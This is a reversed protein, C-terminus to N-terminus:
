VYSYLGRVSVEGSVITREEGQETRVKLRGLEDIGLSVGIDTKM